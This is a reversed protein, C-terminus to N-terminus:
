TNFQESLQELDESVGDVLRCRRDRLVRPEAQEARLMPGDHDIAGQLSGYVETDDSRRSHHSHRRTCGGREYRPIGQPRCRGQPKGKWNPDHRNYPRRTRRATLLPKNSTRTQLKRGCYTHEVEKTSLARVNQKDLEYVFARGESAIETKSHKPSTQMAASLRLIFERILQMLMPEQSGRCTPSRTGTGWCSKYVLGSLPESSGLWRIHFCSMGM